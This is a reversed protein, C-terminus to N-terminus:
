DSHQSSDSVLENLHACAMMITSQGYAHQLLALEVEHAKGLRAYIAM